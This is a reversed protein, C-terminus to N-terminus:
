CAPGEMVRRADAILAQAELASLGQVRYCAAAEVVDRPLRLSWWFAYPSNAAVRTALALGLATMDRRNFLSPIPEVSLDAAGSRPHRQLTGLLHPAVGAAFAMRAPAAVIRRLSGAFALAAVIRCLRACAPRPWLPLAPPLGALSVQLLQPYRDFLFAHAARAHREHRVHRAHRILRGSELWSDHVWDAPASTYTHKM